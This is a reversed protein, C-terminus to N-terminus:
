VPVATPRVWLNLGASLPLKRRKLLTDNLNRKVFPQSVLSRGFYLSYSLHSLLFPHLSFHTNPHLPLTVATFDSHWLTSLNALDSVVVTAIGVTCSAEPLYCNIEGRQIMSLAQCRFKKYQLNLVSCWNIIMGQCLHQKFITYAFFYFILSSWKMVKVGSGINM